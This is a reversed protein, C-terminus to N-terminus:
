QMPKITLNGAKKDLDAVLRSGDKIKEALLEEALKNQLHKQIVRKL